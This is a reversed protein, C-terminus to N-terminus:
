HFNPLKDRKVSWNLSLHVDYAPLLIYLFTFLILFETQGNEKVAPYFSKEALYNARRFLSPSLRGFTYSYASPRHKMAQPLGVRRV